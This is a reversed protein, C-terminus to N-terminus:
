SKGLMVRINPIQASSGDYLVTVAVRDGDNVTVTNTPDSCKTQGNLNCTIPTLGGNVYVKFQANLAAMDTYVYLSSLTGSGVVPAGDMPGPAGPTSGCTSSKLDGLGYIRIETGALLPPVQSCFGSLSMTISSTSTTAEPTAIFTALMSLPGGGAFRVQSTTTNKHVQLAGGPIASFGLVAKAQAPPPPPPPTGGGGTSGTSSSGNGGCGVAVGIALILASFVAFQKKM